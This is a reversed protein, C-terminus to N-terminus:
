ILQRQKVELYRSVTESCFYENELLGFGIGEKKLNTGLKKLRSWVIHGSLDEYLDDTSKPEAGSYLPAIGDPRLMQVQVVHNKRLIAAGKIFNEALVPNDLSTLFILLARKRLRTSIFSALEEYDPSVIEPELRYLAERCSNYHSKGNKARIFDRVQNNFTILGFLDGQKQAALGLILASTVFRDLANLPYGSAISATEMRETEAPRASLRSMDIVVYVEQTKEIQFVKSVPRGSKATTKWHIRDYGDGPIYERLKEFERGEGVPRKPRVGVGGRSLFLVSLHKRESMLNPYSRLLLRYPERKRILWFGLFSETEIYIQELLFQGGKLPTCRWNVWLTGGNEPLPITIEQEPVDFEPPFPLGAKVRREKNGNNKFGIPILGEQGRTLRIEGPPEMGIAQLIGRSLLGDLGIALFFLAAGGALPIALEPIAAALLSFPLILGGTWYIMRNSPVMM